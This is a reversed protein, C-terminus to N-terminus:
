GDVGNKPPDTMLRALADLEMGHGEGIRQAARLRVDDPKNQNLKWTSQMDHIEFRFPLIMRMMRDRVEADMKDLTWPTKNLGAEFGASQVVLTQEMEKAPLAHLTGILHVAVYNWTPVQDPVEYWDPSVYGDPGSVAITAPIGDQVVRCIPNSRVLHLRAYTANASLLFPVHSLLPTTDSSIALIGFGRSRAFELSRTAEAKRFIPNPHMVLELVFPDHQKKGFGIM